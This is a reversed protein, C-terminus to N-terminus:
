LREGDSDGSDEGHMRQVQVIARALASVTRMDIERVARLHAFTTSPQSQTLKTAGIGLLTAPDIELWRCLKIFTQLDPMKGGEIRSLTPASTGIEVAAARLGQNGRKKRVITGLNRLKNTDM